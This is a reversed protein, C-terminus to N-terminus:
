DNNGVELEKATDKIANQLEKNHSRIIDYAIKMQEATIEEPENEAFAMLAILMVYQGSLVDSKLGCKEKIETAIDNMITVAKEYNM